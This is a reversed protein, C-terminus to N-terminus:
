RPRLSFWQLVVTVSRDRVADATCHHFLWSHCRFEFSRLLRTLSQRVPFERAPKGACCDFSGACGALPLCAPPNLDPDSSVGRAQAWSPPTRLRIRCPFRLGYRVPRRRSLPSPVCM